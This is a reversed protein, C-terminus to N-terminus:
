PKSAGRQARRVEVVTVHVCPGTKWWDGLLELVEDGFPNVGPGAVLAHAALVHLCKVRDPMGGASIGEIEPVDLAAAEGVAARDALYRRTRGGTPRRWSPTPRGAPGADRADSGLGRPHRDALEGAPLDPLLHDPVAHRQPAAARDDGRRPQRVPLPARDRPHRPATPRAARRHDGRRDSTAVRPWRDRKEPQPQIKTPPNGAIKVSSWVGDYWPRSEGEGVSSRDDLESDTLPDGDADIVVFPTEGPMVYGRKRAEQMVYAPDEWRDKERELDGISSEREAIQAELADIQSRQQLYARLSSAYSVALVALVLVLIAARGTLRSRQREEARALAVSAM